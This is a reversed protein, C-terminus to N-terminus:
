GINCVHVQNQVRRFIHTVTLVLLRALSGPMKGHHLVIGHMLLRYEYSDRGFYDECARLCTTWLQQQEQQDPPTFFQPRPATAWTTELLTLFDRAYREPEELISVLVTRQSSGEVAAFHIAAWMVAPILRLDARRFMAWAPAPPHTPVPDRVYPSEGYEANGVQLPTGDLLDYRIEFARNPLCELRGIIQRTSRYSVIEPQADDAGAVWAALAKEIGGAVASLAIVRQQAPDMRALLRATLSELRLARNEVFEHAGLEGDYQVGHAEDIVVLALRQLLRPGVFRLLAEGKEYTAIVVVRENATLWADTPGFDTGGYLATVRISPISFHRLVRSLKSEVEAALARTPVLYMVLPAYDFPGYHETEGGYEPAFLRMIIALEAITTKGSGTPTCLVFSRDEVLRAIGRLQSPWTLARNSVFALRLYRELALQGTPGLRAQLPASQLRLASQAYVRMAEACLRGLLWSYRNHSHLMLQTIADLKAIARELREVDGWRLAASMLGFAGAVDQTVHPVLAAASLLGPLGVSGARPLDAVAAWYRSLEDLLGVFDGRVFAHLIRSEDNGPLAQLLGLARAPYGALQYVAAALLHLPADTQYAGPQALWELLEGARRASPQWTADGRERAELAIDLLQLAEDFRQAAEAETWSPLSPQRERLRSFQAYLRAISPTMGSDVLRGRLVDALAEIDPPFPKM